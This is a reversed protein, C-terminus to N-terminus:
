IAAMVTLALLLVKGILFRGVFCRTLAILDRNVTYCRYIDRAQRVLYATWAKGDATQVFTM